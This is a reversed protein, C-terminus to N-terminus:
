EFTAGALVRTEAISSFEDFLMESTGEAVTDVFVEIAAGGAPAAPAGWEAPLSPYPLPSDPFDGWVTVRWLVACTAAGSVVLRSLSRGTTPLCTFAAGEWDLASPPPLPQDLVWPMVDYGIWSDFEREFLYSRPLDAFPGADPEDGGLQEAAGVLMPGADAYDGAPYPAAFAFQSSTRVAELWATGGSGLDFGLYVDKQAFSVPVTQLLVNVEVTLPTDLPIEIGTVTDGPLPELGGVVGLRKWYTVDDLMGSTGFTEVIGAVAFVAGRRAPVEISFAGGELDPRLEASDVGWPTFDRGRFSLLAAKTEGYYIHAIRYQTESPEPLAEWGSIAGTVTATGGEELGEPRLPITANTWALALTSELAYGSVWAHVDVAGSLLPDHFAVLGDASTTGVLATGPDDGVMVRAGAVGAGTAEDIFYLNLHGDLPGGGVGGGPYLEPEPPLDTDDTGGGDPFIPNVDGWCGGLALAALAVLGSRRLM